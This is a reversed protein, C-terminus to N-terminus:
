RFGFGVLCYDILFSVLVHFGLFHVRFEYLVFRSKGSYVSFVVFIQRSLVFGSITLRWIFHSASGSIQM